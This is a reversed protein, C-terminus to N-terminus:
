LILNDEEGGGDVGLAVAVKRVQMAQDGMNDM